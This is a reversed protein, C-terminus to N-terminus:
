KERAKRYVLIETAGQGSASIIYRYNRGVLEYVHSGPAHQIDLNHLADIVWKPVQSMDYKQSDWANWGGLLEWGDSNPESGIRHKIEHTHSASEFTRKCSHCRYPNKHPYKRLRVDAGECYSCQSPLPKRTLQEHNAKMERWLNIAMKDARFALSPLDRYSFFRADLCEPRKARLTGGTIIGYFTQIPNTRGVIVTTIVKVRLGTEERTERAAAKQYGENGDVHGGPLSWKYKEKGYGRQVLLVQGSKNEVLCFAVAM